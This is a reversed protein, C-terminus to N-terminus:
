RARSGLSPTAFSASNAAIFLNLVVANNHQISARLIKPSSSLATTISRSPMKQNFTQGNTKGERRLQLHDVSM